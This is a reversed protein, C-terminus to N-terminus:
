QLPIPCGRRSPAELNDAGVSFYGVGATTPWRFHGNTHNKTVSQTRLRATRNIPPATLEIYKRVTNRSSGLQRAIGRPSVGQLKAHHVAKWPAQKRPTAQSLPPTCSNPGHEKGMPQDVPARLAALSQLQPRHYRAPGPGRDGQWRAPGYAARRKARGGGSECWLPMRWVKRRRLRSCEADSATPTSHHEEETVRLSLAVSSRGSGLTGNYGRHAFSPPGAIKRAREREM